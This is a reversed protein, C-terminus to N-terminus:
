VIIEVAFPAISPKVRENAASNAGFILTLQIAGLRVLAFIDCFISLFSFLFHISHMIEPFYNIYFGQNFLLVIHSIAYSITDYLGPYYENNALNYKQYDGLSQLYKFRVLGNVHHFYEDYSLGIILSNFM